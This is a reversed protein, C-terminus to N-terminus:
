NEYVLLRYIDIYRSDISFNTQCAGYTWILFIYGM